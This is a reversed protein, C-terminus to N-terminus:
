IPFVIGLGVTLGSKDKISEGVGDTIGAAPKFMPYFWDYGIDFALRVGELGIPIHFTLNPGIVAYLDASLPKVTSSSSSSSGHESSTTTHTESTQQLTYVGLGFKCAITVFGVRLGPEYYLYGLNLGRTTSDFNVTSYERSTTDGNVITLNSLVRYSGSSDYKISTHLMNGYGIRHTFLERVFLEGTFASIDWHSSAVNIMGGARIDWDRALTQAKSSSGMSIMVLLFPLAWIIMNRKMM